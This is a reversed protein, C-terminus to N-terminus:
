TTKYNASYVTYISINAIGVIGMSFNTKKHHCVAVVPILFVITKICETTTTRINPQQSLTKIKYTEVM